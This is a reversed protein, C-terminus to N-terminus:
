KKGHRTAVDFIVAAALVAGRIVYQLSIDTGLLNMGNMLSTYVLAGILSGTIKGVGGAASVGGIYGAAIADMEFLQGAQPTASQLRSTFLIGSVATLFGMSGFVIFTIKKVNIGSLEAAEPNGGVAYIHRGLITQQTIYDYIIAIALVIVVTWSLGNYGALIWTIFGIV